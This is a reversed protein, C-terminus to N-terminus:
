NIVIILIFGGVEDWCWVGSNTQDTRVVARNNNNDNVALIVVSSVSWFRFVVKKSGM